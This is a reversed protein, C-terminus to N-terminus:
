DPANPPVDRTALLAGVHTLGARKLPCSPWTLKNWSLSSHIGDVVQEIRINLADLVDVKEQQGFLTDTNDM